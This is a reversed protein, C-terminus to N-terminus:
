PSYSLRQQGELQQVTLGFDNVWSRIGIVNVKQSSNRSFNTSPRISHKQLATLLHITHRQLCVKFESNIVSVKFHKASSSSDMITFSEDHCTIPLLFHVNMVVNVIM